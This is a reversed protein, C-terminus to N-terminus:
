RRYLTGGGSLTRDISSQTIRDGVAARNARYVDMNQGAHVDRDFAQSGPNAPGVLTVPSSGRATVAIAQTGGPAHGQTVSPAAGINQNMLSKVFATRMPLSGMAMSMLSKKAGQMGNGGMIGNAAQGAMSQLSSLGGGIGNIAMGMIGPAKRPVATDIANVAPNPSGLANAYAKAFRGGTIGAEIGGPMSTWRNRLSPAVRSLDNAQLDALLSRGTDRRYEEQALNWAAADQSAPSFDSLGLKKAQDDWTSALFQYKGAASSKKGKNPGSTITIYQRPHDSFDDFTSGGYIVNHKGRSEPGAITELLARAEPPLEAM